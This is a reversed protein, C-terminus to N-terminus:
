YNERISGVTFATSNKQTGGMARYVGPFVSVFDTGKMPAAVLHRKLRVQVRDAPVSVVWNEIVTSDSKFEFNGLIDQFGGGGNVRSCVEAAEETLNRADIQDCADMDIRGVVDRTNGAAVYLDGFGYTALPVPHRGLQYYAWAFKRQEVGNTLDRFVKVNNEGRVGAPLNVRVLDVTTSRMGGVSVWGPYISNEFVLVYDGGPVKYARNLDLQVPADCAGRVAPASSRGGGFFGGFGGGFIGDNRDCRIAIVKAFLQSPGAEGRVTLTGSGGIGSNGAGRATRKPAVLARSLRQDQGYQDDNFRVRGNDDVDASLFMTYITIPERLNNRMEGQVVEGARGTALVSKINSETNWQPVDRLLYLALEMPKELRICGSSLARNNSAFLNRENTDHFYIAWPNTLHFKMLGLANNVGPMQKIFYPFNSKNLRSFDVMFPNVEQWTEADILKMNNRALYDPEQMLHPLKDKVAISQPVTWTPNFEVTVIRDRMIPTRRIPRGNITKMGLVLQGNEYLRFQQAGLNVFVYRSEMQQPLWRLKEMSLEIQRIRDAFSAGLHRMFPGRPSLKSDVPLNNDAQYQRVAREMEATYTQGFESIAQGALALRQKVAPISKSSVGPALEKEPTPIANPAQGSRLKALAEALRGYLPIQPALTEIQAKMQAPGANVAAVVKNLDLTKRTFKIDDDVVDPEIRGTSLDRAYALLADSAAIELSLSMQPNQDRSLQDITANWYDSPNLGHRDASLLMDRLALGMATFRGNRAWIPEFGSSEYLKILLSSEYIQDGLRLYSNTRVLNAIADGDASAHVTLPQVALVAALTMPALSKWWAHRSRIM